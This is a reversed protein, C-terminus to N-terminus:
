ADVGAMTKQELVGAIELLLDFDEEGISEADLSNAFVLISELTERVTKKAKGSKPEAKPTQSQKAKRVRSIEKQLNETATIPEGTVKDVGAKIQEGIGAGLIDYSAMATSLQKAIPLAKFDAHLSRLKSWTQLAPVHSVKIFSSEKGTDKIVKKMDAVSLGSELVLVASLNEIASIIDAESKASTDCVKKWATSIKPATIKVPATTKKATKATM